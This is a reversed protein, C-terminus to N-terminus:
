KDSIHPAPGHTSALFRDRAESFKQQQFLQVAQEYTRLQQESASRQEAVTAPVGGSSKSSSLTKSAPASTKKKNMHAAARSPSDIVLNIYCFGPCRRLWVM